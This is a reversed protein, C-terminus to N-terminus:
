SAQEATAIREGVPPHSYFLLVALRNPEPDEKNLRALKRFASVYAGKDGTRVLAYHDCQREYHRSIVNQLPGVILGFLTLLLMLMPLAFVPLQGYAFVGQVSEVWGALLLDCIWFGAASYLVGAVIYKAIHRYVHHGVEHAFIVEIEGPTFKDLLTDSLLVRRTRGLGALMANAKVTEVGLAIRYVGEISLGTEESLRRLRESLESSELRQIKYFLPLILVPALQGLVLSVLLFAAAAVLWWWPGTTWIIWYVGLSMAAGFATSLALEKVYRWLWGGLSLRSLGFRRELVHGTYFSVELSVAAQLGAVILYLAVLRLSDSRNLWRSHRLWVDIPVALKMAILALVALDLGMDLLSSKLKLRSYRKAEAREETTM